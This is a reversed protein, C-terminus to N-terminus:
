LGRCTGWRYRFVCVCLLTSPQRRTCMNFRHRSGQLQPNTEWGFKWFHARKQSFRYQFDTTSPVSSVPAAPVRGRADGERGRRWRRVQQWSARHLTSIITFNGTSNVTATLSPPLSLLIPFV